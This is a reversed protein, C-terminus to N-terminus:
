TRVTHLQLGICWYSTWPDVRTQISMEIDSARRLRIKHSLGLNSTKLTPPHCIM